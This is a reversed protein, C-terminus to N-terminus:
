AGETDMLPTYKLDALSSIKPQMIDYIRSLRTIAKWSKESYKESNLITVHVERELLAQHLAEANNYSIMELRMHYANFVNRIESILAENVVEDKLIGITLV